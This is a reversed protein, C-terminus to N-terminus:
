PDSVLEGVIVSVNTANGDAVDAQVYVADMEGGIVWVRIRQPDDGVVSVTAIRCPTVCRHVALRGSGPGPTGGDVSALMIDIPVYGRQRDIGTGHQKPKADRREGAIRTEHLLHSGVFFVSADQIRVDGDELRRSSDVEAGQRNAA